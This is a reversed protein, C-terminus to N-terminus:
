VLPKLKFRDIGQHLSKEQSNGLRSGIERFYCFWPCKACYGMEVTHFVTKELKTADLNEQPWCVPIDTWRSLAM